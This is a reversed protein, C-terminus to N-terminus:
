SVTIRCLNTDFSCESVRIRYGLRKERNIREMEALRKPLFQKEVLISNNKM